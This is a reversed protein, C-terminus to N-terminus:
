SVKRQEVVMVKLGLFSVDPLVGVIVSISLSDQSATSSFLFFFPNLFGRISSKKQWHFLFFLRKSAM